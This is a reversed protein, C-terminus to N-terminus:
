KVKLNKKFNKKKQFYCKHIYKKYNSTKLIERKNNFIKKKLKLKFNILKEIAQEQTIEKKHIKTRLFLFLSKYLIKQATNFIEIQSRRFYLWVKISLMGYITKIEKFDYSIDTDIKHLPLRGSKIQSIKKRNRGNIRGKIQIKYGLLNNHLGFRYSDKLTKNIQKLYQRHRITKQLGRQIFYSLISSNRCLIAMTFIRYLPLSRGFNNFIRKISKPHEALYKKHVLHTENLKIRFLKVELNLNLSRLFKSLKKILIIKLKHNRRKKKKKDKLFNRRRRILKFWYPHKKPRNYTFLYILLKNFQYKIKIDIIYKRKKSFLYKLYNKISYDLYFFINYQNSNVIWNSEWNEKFNLRLSKPIVQKM